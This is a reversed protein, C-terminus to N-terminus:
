VFGYFVETIKAYRLKRIYANIPAVNEFHRQPTHYKKLAM